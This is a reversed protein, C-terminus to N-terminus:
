RYGRYLLPEHVGFAESLQEGRIARESGDIEVIRLSVWSALGWSSSFHLLSRRDHKAGSWRDAAAAVTHDGRRATDQDVFVEDTRRRRRNCARRFQRVDNREDLVTRLVVVVQQESNVM